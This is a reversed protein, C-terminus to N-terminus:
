FPLPEFEKEELEELTPERTTGAEILAVNVMDEFDDFASVLKNYKDLLADLFRADSFEITAKNNDYNIKIEM